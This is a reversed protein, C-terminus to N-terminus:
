NGGDRGTAKIFTAVRTAAIQFNLASVDSTLNAAFKAMGSETNRLIWSRVGLACAIVRIAGVALFFQSDGGFIQILLDTALMALAVQFNGEGSFRM